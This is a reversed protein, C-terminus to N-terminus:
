YTVRVTLPLSSIQICTPKESWLTIEMSSLLRGFYQQKFKGTIVEIKKRIFLDFKLLLWDTIM